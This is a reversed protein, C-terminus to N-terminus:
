CVQLQSKSNSSSQWRAVGVRDPYAHVLHIERAKQIRAGASDIEFFRKYAQDLRQIVDQLAQSNLNYWRGKDRKKLKTLHRKLAYYGPYKGYIEYYRRTLAVFRNWVESALEISQVLHKNREHRYLKYKYTKRM